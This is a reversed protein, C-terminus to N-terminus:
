ERKLKKTNVKRARALFILWFALVKQLIKALLVINNQETLTIIGAYLFHSAKEWIQMSFYPNGTKCLQERASIM